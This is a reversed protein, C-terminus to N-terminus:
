HGDDHDHDHDGDDDDDRLLTRNVGEFADKMEQRLLGLSESLAAVTGEEARLAVEHLMRQIFRLQMSMDKVTVTTNSRMSLVIQIFLEFSIEAGEPNLAEFLVDSM